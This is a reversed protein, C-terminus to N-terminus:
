GQAPAPVEMLKTRRPNATQRPLARPEDSGPLAPPEPAFEDKPVGALTTRRPNATPRFSLTSKMSV